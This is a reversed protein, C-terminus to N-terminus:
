RGYGAWWGMKFMRWYNFEQDTLEKDFVLIYQYEVVRRTKTGSGFFKKVTREVISEEVTMTIPMPIDFTYGLKKRLGVVTENIHAFMYKEDYTKFRRAVIFLFRSNM